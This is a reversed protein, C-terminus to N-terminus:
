LGLTCECEEIAVDDHRDAIRHLPLVHQQASRQDIAITISRAARHNDVGFLTVVRKANARNLSLSGRM